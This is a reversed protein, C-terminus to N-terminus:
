LLQFGTYAYAALEQNVECQENTLLWIFKQEPTYEVFNRNYQHVVDFLKRREAELKTCHLLFHQEDEVANCSTCLREEPKLKKYRGAEIMLRHASIRLRTLATRFKPIKVHDLYAEFGFNTKFRRYSRLKNRQGTQVQKHTDQM